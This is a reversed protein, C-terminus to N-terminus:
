GLVNSGKLDQGFNKINMIKLHKLLWTSYNLNKNISFQNSYILRM